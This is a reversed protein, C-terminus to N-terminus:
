TGGRLKVETKREWKEASKKGRRVHPNEGGATQM